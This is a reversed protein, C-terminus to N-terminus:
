PIGATRSLGAFLMVLRDNLREIDYDREVRARGARALAARREPHTALENLRAALTDADREPVLLGTVDHEVLEPIGGTATSVVPLGVAMAEKLVNPIGEEDANGATISPAVLVQARELAQAVQDQSQWGLFHVREGIALRRAEAELTTRLPGDGVVEYEAAVGAERLRRVAELVYGIGKKEVLRGVSV